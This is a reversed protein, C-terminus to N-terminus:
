ENGRGLLERVGQIVEQKKPLGAAAAIGLPIFCDDAAVVKVKPAPQLNELIMAAIQESMSGTKRCEEVLLINQFKAMQALLGESDLPALWRLDIITSKLGEKLELEHMAQRSYYYGNGYTVVLLDKGQGHVGFEGLEISEEVDPYLDTWIKDGVEYLDRTMYLAIPEVFVVVRGREYAERVCTRLMKVADGGRSPVAIILGPIDRFVSLSNDNHFHGGFGKQYALGAIRLVMPNTFQGQSFFALTAAEGRLQDEANHVYALFQIEPIPLIGNHGLGIAAGIISTEDLPSNFVRKNSFKKKLGDTVNYVGGKTAVDEGFIVTNPYQLMVDALGWNLLKALHQPQEMSKLEKGFLRKRQESSPYPKPSRVEACAAITTIV